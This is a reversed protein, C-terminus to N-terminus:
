KQGGSVQLCPALALADLEYRRLAASRLLLLLLLLTSLM